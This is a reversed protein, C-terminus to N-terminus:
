QQGKLEIWLAEAVAVPEGEPTLIASGAEIKRGERRVPWGIAVYSRGTFLPEHIEARMRGLMCVGIEPMLMLSCGGPCDLVAWVIESAVGGDSVPVSSDVEWPSAIVDDRGEVAGAIVRLGDGPPREPGCVFCGPYPSQGHLFSADRAARAENLTV